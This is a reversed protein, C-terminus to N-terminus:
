AGGQKRRQRVKKIRKIDEGTRAVIDDFRGHSEPNEGKKELKKRDRSPKQRDYETQYNKWNVILIGSGNEEVRRTRVLVEITENFLSLEVNLFASLWEHSYAQQENPAILGPKVRSIKAFDLLDNWIGRNAATMEFRGSGFLNDHPWSKRYIKRLGAKNEM